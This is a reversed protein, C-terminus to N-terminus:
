SLHRSMLVWVSAGTCFIPEMRSCMWQAECCETWWQRWCIWARVMDVQMAVCGISNTHDEALQSAM